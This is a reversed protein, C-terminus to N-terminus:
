GTELNPSPMTVALILSVHHIIYSFSEKEKKM